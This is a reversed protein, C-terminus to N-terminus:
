ESRLDCFRRAGHEIIAAVRGVAHVRYGALSGMSASISGNGLRHGGRCIPHLDLCERAHLRDPPRHTTSDYGLYEKPVIMPVWSICHAM